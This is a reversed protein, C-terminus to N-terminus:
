HLTAQGRETSYYETTLLEVTIKLRRKARHFKIIADMDCVLPMGSKSTMLPVTEVTTWKRLRLRGSRYSDWTKVEDLREDKTARSRVCSDRPRPRIMGIEM